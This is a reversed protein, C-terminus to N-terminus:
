PNTGPGRVMSRDGDREYFGQALDVAFSLKAVDSERITEPLNYVQLCPPRTPRAAKCGQLTPGM